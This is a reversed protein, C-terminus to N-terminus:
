DHTGSESSSDPISIQVDESATSPDPRGRVFVFWGGPAEGANWTEYMQGGYERLLEIPEVGNMQSLMSTCRECTYATFEPALEFEAQEDHVIVEVATMKREHQACRAEGAETEPVVSFLQMSEPDLESARYGDKANL